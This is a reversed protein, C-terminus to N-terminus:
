GLMELCDRQFQDRWISPVMPDWKGYKVWGTSKRSGNKKKKFRAGEKWAKDKLLEELKKQM